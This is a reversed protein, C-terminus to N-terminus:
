GGSWDVLVIEFTEGSDFRYTESVWWGVDQDLVSIIEDPAFGTTDPIDMNIQWTENYGGSEGLYTAEVEILDRDLDMYTWKKGDTLPFLLEHEIYGVAPGSDEILTLQEQTRAVTEVEEEEDNCSVAVQEVDFAPVEWEQGPARVTATGEVSEQIWPHEYQDGPECGIGDGYAEYKWWDGTKWTPGTWGEGTGEHTIVFDGPCEIDDLSEKEQEDPTSPGNCGEPPVSVSVEQTDSDSLDNEDTVVLSVEYTGAEQFTEQTTVGNRPPAEMGFDWEYQVIPTAGPSSASGDFECTLGECTYTFAAKLRADVTQVVQTISHELGAADVVTLTVEHNGEESFTHSTMQSSGTQDSGFDWDYSFIADGAARSGTADFSCELGNCSHTFAAVPGAPASGDGHGPTGTIDVGDDAEDEIAGDFEGTTCGSLAFTVLVSVVLLGNVRM